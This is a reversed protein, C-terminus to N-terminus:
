VKSTYITDVGLKKLELEANVYVNENIHDDGAFM